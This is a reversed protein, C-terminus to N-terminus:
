VVDDRARVHQSLLLEEVREDLLQVIGAGGLLDDLVELLQSLDDGFRTMQAHVETRMHRCQRCAGVGHQRPRLAEQRFRLLLLFLLMRLLSNAPLATQRWSIDHKLVVLVIYYYKRSM